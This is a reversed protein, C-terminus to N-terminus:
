LGWVVNDRMGTVGHGKAIQLYLAYAGGAIWLLFFFTLLWNLKGYKELFPRQHQFAKQQYSNLEM